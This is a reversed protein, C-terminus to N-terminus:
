STRLSAIMQKAQDAPLEGTTGRDALITMVLTAHRPGAFAFTYVSYGNTTCGPQSPKWPGSAEVQQGTIGSATTVATPAGPKGGTPDDYGGEIAIKATKTAAAALDTDSVQAVFALSRFASGPCYDNGESSRAYGILAGDAGSQASTQTPASITWGAPVDYSIGLVPAVVTRSGPKPSGSGSPSTSPSGGKSTPAAGATTTPAASTGGSDDRTLAYAAIGGGVLVIVAAVAGLILWTRNPGRPAPPQGYGPVPQQGPFNPDVQGPYFQQTPQYGPQQYGQPQNPDIPPYAPQGWGPQGPDPQGWGQQVPEPQGWAQGPYAPRQYPAQPPYGGAVGPNASGYPNSWQDHNDTM